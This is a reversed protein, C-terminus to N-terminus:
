LHARVIKRDQLFSSLRRLVQLFYRRNKRCQAVKRSIIQDFPLGKVKMFTEPKFSFRKTHIFSGKRCEFKEGYSVIFIQRSTERQSLLKRSKLIGEPIKHAQSYSLTKAITDRQTNLFSTDNSAQKSKKQKLRIRVVVGKLHNSYGM